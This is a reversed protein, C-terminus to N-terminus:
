KGHGYGWDHYNPDTKALHRQDLDEKTYIGILDQVKALWDAREAMANEYQKLRMLSQIVALKLTPEDWEAGLVTKDTEASLMAPRRRYYISLSYAAAPTPWLYLYTGYRTWNTPQGEAATTSRDTKSFYERPSMKDLKRNNTNDFVTYLHLLEAPRNVYPTGDATTTSATVNLEPFEFNIPIKLEWFRNRTGLDMYAANIWPGVLASIDDRQWLERTLREKFDAYTYDGM